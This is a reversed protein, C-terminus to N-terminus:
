AYKFIYGHSQKHEGRCVGTIASMSFGLQRHVEQASPFSQIFNGDLDYQNVPKSSKNNKKNMSLFMRKNEEYKNFRDIIEQTTLENYSWAIDKYIPIKNNCCDCIAGNNINLKRGAERAGYYEHVLKCDNDYGYVRRSLSKSKRKSIENYTNNYEHNCWELNDVHNNQPNEDKHNILPFDDPNDIFAIGVLRHVFYNKKQKNKYLVVYMYGDQTKGPRLNRHVYNSYVNGFNSVKYLGEYGVIDRWEENM